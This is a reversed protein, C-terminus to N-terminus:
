HFSKKPRGAKKISLSSDDSDDVVSVAKKPRGRGVKPAVFIDDDVSINFKALENRVDLETKNMKKM